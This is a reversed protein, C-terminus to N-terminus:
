NKDVRYHVNTNWLLRPIECGVILIDIELVIDV